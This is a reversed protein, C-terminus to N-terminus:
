QLAHKRRGSILIYTQDYALPAHITWRSALLAMALQSTMQLIRDIRAVPLGGPVEM